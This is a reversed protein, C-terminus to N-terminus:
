FNWGLSFNFLNSKVAQRRNAAAVFLNQAAQYSYGAQVYLNRLVEYSVQARLELRTELEGELFFVTESDGPRLSLKADGGVNKTVLRSGDAAASDKNAGHRSYRLSLSGILQKLPRHRVEAFLNDSNPGTAYGLPSDYHLYNTQEAIGAPSQRHSYTYPEIRAYEIRFDTNPLSLVDVVYAGGLWALKNGWFGTGIRSTTLDDIFVQGYVSAGPMMRWSFDLGFSANDPSGYYHEAARLFTVPTLYNWDIGRGATIVTEFFGLALSPHLRLDLRHGIFYKKRQPVDQLNFEYDILTAVVATYKLKWITLRLLLQDYSTAYDSLVLSGTAASGWQNSLKGFAAEFYDTGLKVYGIVEDHSAAGFKRSQVFGLRPLTANGNQFAYNTTLANDRFNIYYDFYPSVNGWVVAGSTTRDSRRAGSSDVTGRQYSLEGLVDLNAAFDPTEVALLTRNNPFIWKPISSAVPATLREIETRYGADPLLTDGQRLLDHRFEVLCFNLQEREVATLQASTLSDRRLALQKVARALEARAIPRTDYHFGPLNGKIFERNLFDYIWHNLELYVGSQTSSQAACPDVCYLTLFVPLFSARYFRKLLAVRYFRKACM